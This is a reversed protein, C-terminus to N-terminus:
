AVGKLTKTETDIGLLRRAENLAAQSDKKGFQALTLLNAIRQERRQEAIEEAFEIMALVRAHARRGRAETSADDANIEDLIALAENLRKNMDKDEL